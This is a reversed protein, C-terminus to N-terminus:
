CALLRQYWPPWGLDKSAMGALYAGVGMFAAHALPFQGSISITRFSVAVVIYIFTLILVHFMYPSEIFLPLLALIIVLGGYVSPNVLERKSKVPILKTNM